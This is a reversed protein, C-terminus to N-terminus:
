EAWEGASRADASMEEQFLVAMGRLKRVMKSRVRKSEGPDKELNYLTLQPNLYLKWEKWRVAALAGQSGHYFFAELYEEQSVTDAWELPPNWPRRLPVSANLSLNAKPSFAAGLSGVM